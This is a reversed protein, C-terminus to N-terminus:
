LKNATYCILVMPEEFTGLKFYSEGFSIKGIILDKYKPLLRTFSLNPFKSTTLKFEEFINVLANYDLSGKSCFLFADWIIEVDNVTNFEKVYVYNTGPFPIWGTKSQEKEFIIRQIKSLSDMNDRCDNFCYIKYNNEFLWYIFKPVTITNSQSVEVIYRNIKSQQLKFAPEESDIYNGNEDFWNFEEVAASEHKELFM